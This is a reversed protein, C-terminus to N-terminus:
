WHYTMAIAASLQVDKLDQFVQGNVALGLSFNDTLQRDLGATLPIGIADGSLRTYTEEINLPTKDEAFDVELRERYYRSHSAYSVGAGLYSNIKKFEQFHYLLYVGTTFVRLEHNAPRSFEQPTPNSSTAGFRTVDNKFMKGDHYQYSAFPALSWRNNLQYDLKLATYLSAPGAPLSGISTGQSGGINFIQKVKVGSSAYSGYGLQLQTSLRSDNQAFLSFSTIMMFMCTLPLLRYLM